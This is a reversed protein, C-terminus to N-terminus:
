NLNRRRRHRPLLMAGSAAWPKYGALSRRLRHRPRRARLPGNRAGRPQSTGRYGKPLRLGISRRGGRRACVAQHHGGDALWRLVLSHNGQKLVVHKLPAAYVAVRFSWRGVSKIKTRAIATEVTFGDDALYLFTQDRKAQRGRRTWNVAERLELRDVIVENNARM